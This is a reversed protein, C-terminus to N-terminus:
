RRVHDDGRAEPDRERPRDGLREAAALRPPRASQDRPRQPELDDARDQAAADQHRGAHEPGRGPPTSRPRRPRRRDRDHLADRGGREDAGVPEPVRGDYAEDRARDGHGIM